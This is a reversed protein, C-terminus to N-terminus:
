IIKGGGVVIDGIYFVASQGPTIARQPEYFSAKIKKGEQIIKAKSTKSSYRTKIEVDIPEKIEDFLLLNIEDVTIEKKYLDQVFILYRQILNFSSM